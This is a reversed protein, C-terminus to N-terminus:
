RAQAPTRNSEGADLTSIQNIPCSPSVIIIPIARGVCAPLLLPLWAQALLWRTAFSTHCAERVSRRRRPLCPLLRGRGFHACLRRTPQGQIKKIRCRGNVMRAPGLRMKSVPDVPRALQNLVKFLNARSHRRNPKRYELGLATSNMPCSLM